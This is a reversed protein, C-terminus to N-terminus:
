SRNGKTAHFISEVPSIFIKRLRTKIPDGLYKRYEPLAIWVFIMTIINTKSLADALHLDAREAERYDSIM